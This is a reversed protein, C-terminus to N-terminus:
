FGNIAAESPEFNDSPSHSNPKQQTQALPVTPSSRQTEVTSVPGETVDSRKQLAAVDRRNQAPVIEAVRGANQTHFPTELATAQRPVPTAASTGRRKERAKAAAQIMPVRAENRGRSNTVAIEAEPTM